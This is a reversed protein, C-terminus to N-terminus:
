RVAGGLGHHHELHGPPGPPLPLVSGTVHLVCSGWTRSMGARAPCLDGKSTM